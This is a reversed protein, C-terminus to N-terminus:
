NINTEILDGLEVVFVKTGKEFGFEKCAENSEFIWLNTNKVELIAYLSDKVNGCYLYITDYKIFEKKKDDWFRVVNFNNPDRFEHKKIGKAIPILNEKKIRLSLQNAM